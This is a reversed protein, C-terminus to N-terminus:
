PLRKHLVPVVRAWPCLGSPSRLRCARDGGEVVVAQRREALWNKIWRNEEGKIGYSHLKHILLSHSVKDLAKAFDMVLIDIQRGEELNGSLDDIFKILQTVHDAEELGM